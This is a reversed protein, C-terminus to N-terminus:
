SSISAHQGLVVDAEKPINTNTLKNRTPLRNFSTLDLHHGPAGYLCLKLRAKTLQSALTPLLGSMDESLSLEFAWLLLGHCIKMEMM